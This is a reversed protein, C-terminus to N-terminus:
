KTPEYLEGIMDYEFTQTIRVKVFDGINLTKGSQVFILGDIDPAEAYSRAAYTNEHPRVSHAGVVVELVKGAKKALNAKSVSRQIEMLRHMRAIKTKEPLHGDLKDAATGEERSYAFVGLHDFKMDKVFDCLEKFDKKDEGPFGAILTTRLVVDPIARRLKIVLERLKAGTSRRNMLKLIKDSAHQIPMDIYKLVKPNTAIEEILEDYIHEPYCYLLRIWKLNPIKSLEKLLTHLQKDGYLTTNQAVLILEKVGLNVLSRAEELLAEIPQSRYPGRITPIVCYSCHSDCGDAIRLYAYHNPTSLIRQTNIAGNASLPRGLSLPEAALTTGVPLPHLPACHAGAITDILKDYEGVGLVGDVYPNALFEERNRVAACGTVIAMKCSGSKKFSVAKEIEERSEDLADQLFGCTNIIIVEALALDPVLVFGAGNLLGLMIESDVTNKDCGLSILAAKTEKAM